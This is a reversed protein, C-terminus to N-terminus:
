KKLWYLDALNIKKLFYKKVEKKSIIVIMYIKRKSIRLFIRKVNRYNIVRLPFNIFNHFIDFLIKLAIKKDSERKLNYKRLMDFLIELRKLSFVHYKDFFYTVIRYILEYNDMKVVRLQNMKEGKM